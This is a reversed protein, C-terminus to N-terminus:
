TAAPRRVLKMGCAPCRGPGARRLEPHMPCTYDGTAFSGAGVTAGVRGGYHDFRALMVLVMLLCLPGCSFLFLAPWSELKAEPIWGLWLMGILPIAGVVTSGSMELNHQAPHGRLYMYVAMAIAMDAAIITISLAPARSVLDPYGLAGAAGFVGFSLLAGGACMVACMEVFHVAFRRIALPLSVTNAKALTTM